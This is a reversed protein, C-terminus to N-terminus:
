GVQIVESQPKHLLMPDTTVHDPNKASSDAIIKESEEHDVKFHIRLLKAEQGEIKSNMSDIIQQVHKKCTAADDTYGRMTHEIPPAGESSITFVAVYLYQEAM